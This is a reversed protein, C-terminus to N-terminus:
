KLGGVDQALTQMEGLGKQVEILQKGVTEFNQGLRESLTKELKEDVTERMKELKAANDEQLLKISKELTGSMQVLKEKSEIDQAALREILNGFNQRQREAFEELSKSLEQKVGDLVQKM